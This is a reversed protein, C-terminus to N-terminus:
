PFSRRNPYALPTGINLSLCAKLDVSAPYNSLFSVYIYPFIKVVEIFVYTQM